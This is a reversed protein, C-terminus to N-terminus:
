TCLNIGIGWANFIGSAFATSFSHSFYLFYPMSGSSLWFCFLPSRLLLSYPCFHENQTVSPCRDNSFHQIPPLACFICLDLQVGLHYQSLGNLIKHLIWQVLIMLMVFSLLLLWPYWRWVAQNRLVLLQRLIQQYGPFISSSGFNNFIGFIPIGLCWRKITFCSIIKPGNCPVKIVTMVNFGSDFKVYRSFYWKWNWQFLNVHGPCCTPWQIYHQLQIDVIIPVNISISFQWIRPCTESPERYQIFFWRIPICPGPPTQHLFLRCGPRVIQPWLYPFVDSADFCNSFCFHAISVGLSSLALFNRPTWKMSGYSSSNSSVTWFARLFNSTGIGAAIGQLVLPRSYRSVQLAEPTQLIFYMCRIQSFACPVVVNCSCADFNM